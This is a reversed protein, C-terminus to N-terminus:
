FQNLLEVLQAFNEADDQADFHDFDEDHAMYICTYLWKALLVANSHEWYPDWSTSPHRLEDFGPFDPDFNQAMADQNEVTVENAISLMKNKAIKMNNMFTEFSIKEM